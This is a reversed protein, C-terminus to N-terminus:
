PSLRLSRFSSHHLFLDGGQGRDVVAGCSRFPYPRRRRRGDLGLSRHHRCRHTFPHRRGGCRDHHRHRRDIQSSAEREPLGDDFERGYRDDDVGLAARCKRRIRFNQRQCLRGSVPLRGRHRCYGSETAIRSQFSGSRRRIGPRVHRLRYGMRRYVGFSRQSKAIDGFQCVACGTRDALACRRYPNQRFTDRCPRRNGSDVRQSVLYQSAPGGFGYSDGPRKRWKFKVM